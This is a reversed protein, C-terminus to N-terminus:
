RLTVTAFGTDNNPNTDGPMITTADTQIFHPAQNSLNTITLTRTYTRAGPIVPVPCTFQSDFGTGSATCDTGAGAEYSFAQTPDVNITMTAPVSPDSGLNAVTIQVTANSFNQSLVTMSTALDPPGPVATGSVQFDVSQTVQNGDVFSATMASSFQGLDAGNFTISVKCSDNHNLTAGACTNATVPFHGTDSATITFSSLPTAGYNTFVFDEANESTTGVPQDAFTFSAPSVMLINVGTGQLNVAQSGGPNASV